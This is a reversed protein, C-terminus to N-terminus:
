KLVVMKRSEVFAGASLEYLYVGSAVVMGTEDKGDWEVRYSGASLTRQVLTMVSQGLVNYISLQVESRRPLGFEIATSLNFPNPYNQALSYDGPITPEYMWEVETPLYAGGQVVFVDHPDGSAFNRCSFMFDGYGDGNFDGAPALRWGVDELLLPPLDTRYISMDWFVDLGPGGVYIDVVGDMVRNNGGLLDNYGDGNIDGAQSLYSAKGRLWFDYLTDSSPGGRYILPYAQFILGLDDWSDGDVDGVNRVFRVFLELLLSDHSQPHGIIIDPRDSFAPGRFVYVYSLTDLDAMLGLYLDLCEDGDFDIFGFGTFTHSYDEIHYVWDAVTDIAPCGSYFYLTPGDPTYPASTLLDGLSDSDVYAVEVRAGFRYNFGAPRLSDYPASAISDDYGKFFYVVGTPYWAPDHIASTILENIGDGDLDIPDAAGQYGPVAMDPFTDVPNGGFFVYTVAPSKSSVAIDDYGDSNVDGLPTIAAGIQSSENEGRFHFIINNPDFPPNGAGAAVAVGSLLFVCSLLVAIVIGSEHQM